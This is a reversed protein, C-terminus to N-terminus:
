VNKILQKALPYLATECYYQPQKFELDNRDITKELDLLNFNSFDVPLIKPYTHSTVYKFCSKMVHPFWVDLGCALYEFLKNPANYIYNPIHGKYLIVGVDYDSLV